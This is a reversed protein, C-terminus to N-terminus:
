ADPATGRAAADAAADIRRDLRYVIAIVLTTFVIGLMQWLMPFPLELPRAAVGNSWPALGVQWAFPLLLLWRHTRRPARSAAV